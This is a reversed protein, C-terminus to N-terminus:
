VKLKKWRGREFRILMLVGRLTLEVSLVVWVAQLGYGLVNVVLFVGGLRVIVISFLNTLMVRFTDGAGRLSFGFVLSAAFGVQAFGAAFLCDATAQLVEPDRTVLGAIEQGLVVFLIGMVTMFGGGLAYARWACSRAREPSGMGLSQGVLTASAVAFGMGVLYSFAELRIANFHAAGSAAGLTNVLGVVAFQAFWQLTQEMGAPVGIRLMRKMTLLNPRLRHVYLTLKGRGSLMVALLLVGGVAYAIATGQAIGAFGTEPMFGWGRVLAFSMVANVLDVVVFAMAPLIMEGAGRLCAGCAFMLIAFPMAPAVIRLYEVFLGQAEVPLRVWPAILPALFWAIISFVVGVGVAAIVAQGAVSNALSKHKAGIARAILATAGTGVTGSLLGIFWLIYAVSGVAAAANQNAIRADTLAQGELGSLVILNNALYSDTFGVVSHLLQEIAVPLALLLVRKWLNESAKALGGSM